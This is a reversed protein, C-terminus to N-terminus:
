AATRLDAVNHHHGAHTGHQGNLSQALKTYLLSLTIARSPRTTSAAGSMLALVNRFWTCAIPGSLGGKSTRTELSSLASRTDLKRSPPIARAPSMSTSLGM